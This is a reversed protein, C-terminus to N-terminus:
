TSHTPRSWLWQGFWLYFRQQRRLANYIACATSLRSAFTFVLRPDESDELLPAARVLAALASPIDGSQEFVHEKELLLILLAAPSTGGRSAVARDLLELAEPFRRQDRRLSAEMALPRWEALLEPGSDDGKGWFERGRAFAEDATEYDNCIRRAHGIHAWCYGTLRSRWIKMGEVREAISLALEALALAAFADQPASKVSAECACLALAWSASRPSLHILRRRM